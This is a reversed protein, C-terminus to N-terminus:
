NNDIIIFDLESKTSPINIKEYEEPKSIYKYYYINVINDKNEIIDLFLYCLGYQLIYKQLLISNVDVFICTIYSIGLLIGMLINKWKRYNYLSYNNVIYKTIKYFDDYFYNTVTLIYTNNLCLLISIICQFIFDIYVNNFIFIISFLSYLIQRLIISIFQIFVTNIMKKIMTTKFIKYIILGKDPLFYNWM